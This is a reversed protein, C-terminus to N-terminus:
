LTEPRKWLEREGKLFEKINYVIHSTIDVFFHYVVFFLLRYKYAPSIRCESRRRLGPLPRATLAASVGAPGGGVILIDYLDQM